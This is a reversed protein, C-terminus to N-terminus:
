SRGGLLRFRKGKERRKLAKAWLVTEQSIWSLRPAPAAQPSTQLKESGAGKRSCISVLRSWSPAWRDPDVGGDVLATLGTSM